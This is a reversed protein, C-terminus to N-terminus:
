IAVFAYEGTIDNFYINYTGAPIKMNPADQTGVGYYEDGLNIDRGWNVGWDHNAKFKIEDDSAITFNKLVWNHPSKELQTLDTDGWSNFNGAVSIQQYETPAQNDLRTWTYTNAAMDITFTYYEASPASIAQAGSNILTGSPSNDGDVASGYCADWNGYDAALWLKLDWAGSFKTTYSHKTASQPYLLCQKDAADAAWGNPTGTIYYQPAVLTIEYTMASLDVVIRAMTSLGAEIKFSGDDSLSTRRALTGKMGSNGNGSTTGYLKSWAGDENNGIADCAEEDGIAFWTDGTTSLPIMITYIPSDKSNQTFRQEKSAASAVWDLTGGVVYLKVELQEIRYTLNVMDITVAYKGKGSIVPTQVEQDDGTFVIYGQTANDGNVACGMQGRNVEDWNGDAYHSGEYFKFWNSEASTTNVVATYTGDGNDTMWVPSSLDWGAGNEAFNGLLYYGKSDLAPTAKPTISGTVSAETDVTVADGNTLNVSALAKFDLSRKVAARSKFDNKVVNSLESASVTIYNGIVSAAVEHGNVTLSKVTFGAVGDNTSTMEIVKVDDNDVPLTIDADPGAAFTIGYKAAADEPSYAQPSAWDDYDGNCGALVLGTMATLCYQFIKKM